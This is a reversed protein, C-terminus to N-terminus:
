KALFRDAQRQGAVSEIMDKVKRNKKKKKKKREGKEYTRVWESEWEGM